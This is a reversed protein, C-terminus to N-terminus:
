RCDACRHTFHLHDVDPSSLTCSAGLEHAGEDGLCDPGETCESVGDAHEWWVGPCVGPRGSPASMAALVAEVDGSRMAVCAPCGDDAHDGGGTMVVLDRGRGRAAKARRAERRRQANRGM